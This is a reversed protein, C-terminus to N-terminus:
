TWRRCFRVLTLAWGCKPTWSLISRLAFCLGASIRPLFTVLVVTFLILRLAFERILTTWRFGRNILTTFKGFGSRVGWSEDRLGRAAMTGFPWGRIVKPLVISVTCSGGASGSKWVYDFSSKKAPRFCRTLTKLWQHSDWYQTYSKFTHRSAWNRVWFSMNWLKPSWKWSQDRFNQCKGSSWDLNEWSM